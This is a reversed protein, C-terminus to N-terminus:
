FFFFIFYIFLCIFLCVVSPHYHSILVSLEWTPSNSANAYKPERKRFDYEPVEKEEEKEEEEEEDEDDREEELAIRSDM